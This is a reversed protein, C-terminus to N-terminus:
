RLLSRSSAHDPFRKLTSRLRGAADASDGTLHEAVALHYLVALQGPLLNEARELRSRAGAADGSALATMGFQFWAQADSPSEEVLRSLMERSTEYDRCERALVGLNFRAEHYSPAVQVAAHFSEAARVFDGERKAIVGLNNHALPSEPSTELTKAFLVSENRFFTCRFAVLSAMGVVVCLVVRERGRCRVGVIMAVVLTAALAPLYLYRDACSTYLPILNSVPLYSAAAWLSAFAAIRRDRRSAPRLGRVCLALTAALFVAGAVCALGDATVDNSRDISYTWPTAILTVYEWLVSVILPVNLGGVAADTAGTGGDSAGSVVVARIAFMGLLTAAAVSTRVSWRLPLLPKESERVLLDFLVAAVPLSIAMEKSAFAALALGVFTARRWWGDKSSCYVNLAALYLALFLVDHRAAIYTVTEAHFPLLAWIAAFGLRWLGGARSPLFHLALRWVLWTSLLHLLLQTVHFGFADDGFLCRDIWLSLFSLPRYYINPTGNPLSAEVPEVFFGLVSSFDVFRPNDRVLLHDDLVFTGWLGPLYAIAVMGLVWLIRRDPTKPGANESNM